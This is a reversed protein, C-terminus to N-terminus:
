LGRSIDCGMAYKAHGAIQSLAATHSIFLAAKIFHEVSALYILQEGREKETVETQM